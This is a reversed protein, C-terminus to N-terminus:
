RKGRKRQEATYEAEAALREEASMSSWEPRMYPAVLPQSNTNPVPQERHLGARLDEVLQAPHYDKGVRDLYAQILDLPEHAFEKAAGMRYQKRLLKYTETLHTPSKEAVVVVVNQQENESTTTTPKISPKLSPKPSIKHANKVRNKVGGRGSKEGQFSQVGSFNEGGLLSRNIRFLHCGYPGAQERISLEKSEVLRKLLLQVNRTTMRTKNALTTVSPYARGHDDSHDAIALMLLLASGKHGSRQWVDNMVDISM